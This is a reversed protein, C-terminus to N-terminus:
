DGMLSGEGADEGATAARGSNSGKELAFNENRLRRTIAGIVREKAVAPM